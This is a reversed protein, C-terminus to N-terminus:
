FLRGVQFFWKWHGDTGVSAGAFIPGLISEAAFGAVADNPVTSVNPIGYPKAVEYHGALYVGKGLFPPMEMIRHLYGLRGYFYQNTLFENTGYAALRNPGGLSFQPLGSQDHGFTTGGAGVIYVSGRKSVPKFAALSLEASPFGSTAGPNADVWSGTGLLAWGRRPIVPADLHDAAYRVRTTGTRGAVSPLLPTGIRRGADLYGTQYGFRLESFRDFSYGVDFGGNVQSLRYEALLTDKLYLNIPSRSASLRPAVFWRSLPTFPHYYEVSALYTSGISFDTRIESRYGGIDQFTLRAGFIFQVNDPDSADIVFGPKLWPPSYDKEEATILLGVKNNREVFSYALSNFRGLGTIEQLSQELEQTSIAKGVAPGLKQEIDRALQPSTGEVLVFQPTALSKHTRSERQALHDQWNKEDLSFTSLIKEKAQASQYGTPIIQQSRSFDLTGYGAVNVTLLIDAAEIGRLQNADIMVGTSGGAVGFLSRLTKPDVPGTTLHVGIVIDAGMDRVVDTPLNNLLAGDAYIKDSDRVPSFVGPLSMTSRLATALSGNRFVVQKGSVLDTAVCRFPIPLEDFNRSESYPLVYRDIVTRVGQGSNLGGPLQFGGRLGFELPNPYARYDEKRRFALDRYPTEGSLVENWNLTDVIKSIEAPSHGTAYLGGVLGGMSTGALYDIPVHHEEFWQLVGIHALGKAGGGQLAVGIKPRPRGPPSQDSPQACVSIQTSLFLIACWSPRM